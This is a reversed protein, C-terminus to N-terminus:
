NWSIIRNIPLQMESASRRYLMISYIKWTGEINMCFLIWNYEAHSNSVLIAPGNFIIDTMDSSPVNPYIIGIISLPPISYNNWYEIVLKVSACYSETLLMGSIICEQVPECYEHNIDTCYKRHTYALISYIDNKVIYKSITVVLDCFSHDDISCRKIEITNTAKTTNIPSIDITESPIVIQENDPTNPFICSNLLITFLILLVCNLLKNVVKM